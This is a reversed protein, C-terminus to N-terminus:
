LSDEIEVTAKVVLSKFSGDENTKVKLVGDPMSKLEEFLADNKPEELAVKDGAFLPALMLAMVAIMGLFPKKICLPPQWFCISVSSCTNSSITKYHHSPINKM